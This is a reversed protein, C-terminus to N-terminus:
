ETRAPPALNRELATAWVTYGNRNLHIPDSAYDQKLEGAEDLFLPHLDLFDAGKREALERIFANFQVIRPNFEKNTTRVPLVSLLLIRSNPACAQMETLLREYGKRMDEEPTSAFVIDNVGIMVVVASPKLNCVSVDLRDLLGYYKWGGIKDGGIGRNHITASQIYLDPPFRETMSDGLYVIGGPEVTSEEAQFQQWRAIWHRTSENMVKAPHDSPAPAPIVSWEDPAPTPAAAPPATPAPSQAVLPALALSLLLAPLPRLLPM